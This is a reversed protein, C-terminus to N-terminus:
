TDVKSLLCTLGGTNDVQIRRSDVTINSIGLGGQM